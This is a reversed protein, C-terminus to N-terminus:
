ASGNAKRPYRVCEVTLVDSSKAYPTVEGHSHLPHEVLLLSLKTDAKKKDNRNQWHAALFIAILPSSAGLCGIFVDWRTLHDM